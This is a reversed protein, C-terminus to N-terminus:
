GGLEMTNSMDELDSQIDNLEQNLEVIDIPQSRYVVWAEVQLEMESISVTAKSLRERLETESAPCQRAIASIMARLAQYQELAVEWRGDRHLSKLRQILGIARELDIALLHRGINDKTELTAQKAAEASSRAKRSQFGAYGLGILALVFGAFSFLNGWHEVFFEVM